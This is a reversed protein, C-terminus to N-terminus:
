SALLKSLAKLVNKNCGSKHMRFIGHKIASLAGIGGGDTGWMSGPRSQPMKGLIFYYEGDAQVFADNDNPTIRKTITLIGNSEVSLNWGLRNATEKVELAIQQSKTM